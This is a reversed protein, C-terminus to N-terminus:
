TNIFRNYDQELMRAQKEPLKNILFDYLQKDFSVKLCTSSPFWLNIQNRYKEDFPNKSLFIFYCNSGFLCNNINLFAHRYSGIGCGQCCNYSISFRERFLVSVYVKSDTFLGWSYLQNRRTWCFYTWLFSCSFCIFSLFLTSVSLEAKLVIIVFINPVISFCPVLLAAYATFASGLYRRKGKKEISNPM